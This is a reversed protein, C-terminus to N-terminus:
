ECILRSVRISCTDPYKDLDYLENSTRIEWGDVGHSISGPYEIDCECPSM